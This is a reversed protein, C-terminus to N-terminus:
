PIMEKPTGESVIRGKDLKIIWDCNRLTSFRHAVVIMTRKGKLSDISEMVAKETEVDLASTAEDLILLPPNTYLARAIGLRQKQGGSLNEGREGIVSEIGDQRSQIFIDLNAMTLASHVADEDIDGPAVGFAVNSKISDDNLYIFQPVYGIQKQWARINKMVSVGDVKIDGDSPELLGLITNILTSKGSGSEGIIGLSKGVPLSFSVDSLAPHAADLYSFSMNKIELIKNFVVQGKVFKENPAIKGIKVIENHITEIAYQTFRLLQASSVIRNISPLLRFSAAGFVGIIPVLKDISNSFFVISLVLVVLGLVSFFELLIKPTNQITYQRASIVARAENHKSFYSYFQEEKGLIKVEKIGNLGQLLHKNCEGEHHQRDKGLKALRTKTTRYIVLSVVTLILFIIITGKPEVLFLFFAVSISLLMETVLNMLSQIGYTFQIVEGQVNRVLQASNTMSHFSYPLYLYGKFLRGSVDEAMGFIFKSQMKNLGFFFLTKVVYIILMALMAYIILERQSYQHIDLGLTELLRSTGM